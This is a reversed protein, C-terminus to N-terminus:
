RCYLSVPVDGGMWHLCSRQDGSTVQTRLWWAQLTPLSREQLSEVGPLNPVCEVGFGEDVEPIHLKCLFQLLDLLMEDIDMAAERIDTSALRTKSCSFMEFHM